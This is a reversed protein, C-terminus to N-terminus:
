QSEQTKQLVAPLGGDATIVRHKFYWHGNRKVQARRARPGARHVAAAVDGIESNVGTWIVDTTATDGNVVIKPNTLLM